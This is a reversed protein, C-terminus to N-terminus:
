GKKKPARKLFSALRKNLYESDNLECEWLVLASWNLAALDNLVRADRAQNALIKEEWFIANSKPRRGKPCSHGHWFCGHIFVAKRDRPFLIDPRGPLKPMHLRFRYGARHLLSRVLLEPATDRQRIRSMLKSRDAKSLRDAM